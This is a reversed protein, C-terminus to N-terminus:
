LSRRHALELPRHLQLLQDLKDGFQKSYEADARTYIPQHRDNVWFTITEDAVITDDDEDKDLDRAHWGRTTTLFARAFDDSITCCGRLIVDLYSQAIPAERQVPCSAQDRYVWVHISDHNNKNQVHNFYCLENNNSDEKSTGVDFPEVSDHQLPVRDYGLERVDFQALEEDSVPVLVGVATAGAQQRIGMFTM